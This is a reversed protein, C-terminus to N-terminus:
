GAADPASRVPGVAGTLDSRLRVVALVAFVLAFGCLAVLQPAIGAVGVGDFIVDTWAQMAWYHPVAHAVTVMGPPFTEIPVMCGGLAGLVLGVVPTLAGVRDENAGFAGLLLGASAGVTGFVLVLLVAAVPDGWDVGFGVAGVVLIIASQVLAVALWGLGLGALIRAASTPTSIARRLVGTRRSRVLLAGAGLTNIFVFLVLNQPATLAFPSMEGLVADGVEETRVDVPAARAAAVAQAAQELPVDAVEAVFRSAAAPAGGADVAQEVSSRAAFAPLSTLDGIVIVRSTRGETLDRDLEASLVVGAGIELRRVAARLEDASDYTRVEVGATAEVRDVIEAAVPGGGADVVGVRLGPDTGFTSGIIVIIAVPLALMFFLSSRDRLLHRLVMVVFARVQNM